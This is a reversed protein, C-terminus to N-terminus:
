KNDPVKKGIKESINKPVIENVFKAAEDADTALLMFLDSFAQTQAFRNALRHGDDDVKIFMKGDASKEGYSKLILDKFISILAPMDQTNVIKRIYEDLGGNVTLQMETVEQESLHFFYDETRENGNFDVSTMTRKHM